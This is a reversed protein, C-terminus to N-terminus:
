TSRGLTRLKPLVAGLTIRMVGVSSTSSGFVM